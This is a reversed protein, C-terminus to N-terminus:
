LSERLLETAKREVAVKMSTTDSIMKNIHMHADILWASRVSFSYYDLIRIFDLLLKDILLSSLIKTYYNVSLLM